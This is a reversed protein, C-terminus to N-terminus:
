AAKESSSIVKDWNVVIALDRGETLVQEPVKGYAYQVFALQKEFSKSNAWDRLILEIQSMASGKEVAEENAIQQALKRISDITKPRGKRNIRPDGPVFPVLQSYKKAAKPSKEEKPMANAARPLANVAEPAEAEQGPQAEAESEAYPPQGVTLGMHDAEDWGLGESM